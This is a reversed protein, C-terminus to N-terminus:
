MYVHIGTHVNSGGGAPLVEGERVVGEDQVGSGLRGDEAERGGGLLRLDLDGGDRKKRM